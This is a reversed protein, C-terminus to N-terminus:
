LIQTISALQAIKPEPQRNAADNRRM